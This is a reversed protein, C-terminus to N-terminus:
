DASSQDHYWCRISEDEMRQTTNSSHSVQSSSNLTTHHTLCGHMLSVRLYELPDHNSSASTHLISVAKVFCHLYCLSYVADTVAPYAEEIDVMIVSHSGKFNLRMTQSKMQSSNCCQRELRQERCNRWKDKRQWLMDNPTKARIFEFHRLNHCHNLPQRPNAQARPNRVNM